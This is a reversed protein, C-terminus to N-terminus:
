KKDEENVIEVVNWITFTLGAILLLWHRFGWHWTPGHDSIGMYHCGEQVFHEDKRIYAGGSCRWDGFFEPWTEPIFSVAGIILFMLLVRVKPNIRKM